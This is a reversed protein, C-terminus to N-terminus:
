GGRRSWKPGCSVLPQKTRLLKMATTTRGQSDAFWVPQNSKTLQEGTNIGRYRKESGVPYVIAGGLDAHAQHKYYEVTRQKPVTTDEKGRKITEEKVYGIVNGPDDEM